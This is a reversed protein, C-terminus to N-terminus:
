PSLPLVPFPEPDRGLLQHCPTFGSLDVSMRQLAEFTKPSFPLLPAAVLQFLPAPVSLLRCRRASDSVPLADQLALLMERYTLMNDGGLAIRTVESFVFDGHLFQSVFHLAVSALQRCHIPQRLGSPEPLPLAPIRRMLAILRSINRDDAGKFSGYILTPRLILLPLGIPRCIKELQDEARLLRLVLRRDHENAAFRKTIVSSSSCAIVGALGPILGPFKSRIGELFSALKWIPAFSLWVSGFESEHPCFTGLNDFDFDPRVMPHVMDAPFANSSLDIWARGSLSTAGFCRIIM